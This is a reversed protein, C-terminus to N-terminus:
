GNEHARHDLGITTPEKPPEDFGFRNEVGLAVRELGTHVRLM